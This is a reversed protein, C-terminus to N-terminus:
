NAYELTEGKAHIWNAEALLANVQASLYTNKAQVLNDEIITWNDYTIFGTSYQMQAIKSREQAANLSKFQVDVNESSNLLINWNQRMTLLTDEATIQEQFAAQALAASAQVTQAKHLGGEFIPMTVTFGAGLQENQPTWKAGSKGADAQASISPLFNAYASKLNYQAANHRAIAQLVSPHNKIIADFDPKQATPEALKFNANVAIFTFEKRGIQRNLQRQALELDREAAHLSAEAQAMSAQATLLAGQHELGSEYQLTVLDLSGKRIQVIEEDVKIMEQARMLNIYAQKLNLRIDVSAFRYTQKAALINQKAANVNNITKFGDFILQRASAGYGFSNGITSANSSKNKTRSASASADIQPYLGSATIDKAARTQELSKEAVILDPNNKVTEKLCDTWSLITPENGLCLAPFLGILMLLSIFKKM